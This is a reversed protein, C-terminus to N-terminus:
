SMIEKVFDSYAIAASSKSAHKYISIGKSLSESVKVSTPIKADFIKIKYEDRYVNEIINLLNKSYNTRLNAQTILIGAIELTPNISEKIETITDVLLQISRISLYDLLTPIIIKNSCALANINILSLSPSCDLVVYDYDYENELYEIFKTLISESNSTNILATEIAALDINSPIIDIGENHRVTCIDDDFKNEDLLNKFIKTITFDIEDFDVGVVASLSSQPDLDVLLVKKNNKALGVALNLSTCTKSVGGKQNLVTLVEM